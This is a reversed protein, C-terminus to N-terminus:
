ATASASTRPAAPSGPSAPGATPTGCRWCRRRSASAPAWSSDPGSRPRRDPLHEALPDGLRRPRGAGRPPGPLRGDRVDGPPRRLRPLRRGAPQEHLRHAGGRRREPGPVRRLRPGSGAGPGEGRRQRLRRHRRRDPRARGGPTRRRRLRGRLRAHDRPAEPPPAPERPPLPRAPGAPRHRARPARGAGPRLPGGQGRVRRRDGGPHRPGGGRAPGPAVRGPAPGGLRGPGALLPPARARRAGSAPVALCAEPELFAHEVASPRSASGSSTRPARWAATPTAGACSRPRWCTGARTSRRPAPRWPPSRTSSRSWSTTSWRSSPPRRGPRAGRARPSPRWRRRRRLADARGRRRLGALRPQHPRRGPRGARRGRHRGRRRRSRGARAARRDPPRDGAPPRQLPAGRPADGPRGHRRRVAARRPGHRRAGIRDARAGVGGSGRDVSAAPEGRRVAAVAEIADVIKVYGTCRCLNGALARAIEDRSPSPERRLLGEAKM